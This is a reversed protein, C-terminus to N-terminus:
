RRTGYTNRLSREQWRAPPLRLLHHYERGRRGHRLPRFARFPTALYFFSCAARPSAAPVQAVGEEWGRIVEQKGMVFKFPKNRDRSSDFKKGDELM